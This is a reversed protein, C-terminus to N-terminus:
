ALTYIYTVSGHTDHPMRCRIGLRFRIRFGLSSELCAGLVGYVCERV